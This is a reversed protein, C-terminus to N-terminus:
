VEGSVLMGLLKIAYDDNWGAKRRRMAIGRTGGAEAQLVSQAMRRFLAFNEAAHGTSVTCDDEKFIVDMAWHLHNEISWHSQIIKMAKEATMEVNSIYYRSETSVKWKVERQSTIEILTRLDRWESRCDLWDLLSTVVVERAEIRGHGKEIAKATLCDCGEYQASRAQAFFNQAEDHLHGQNGKLAIM